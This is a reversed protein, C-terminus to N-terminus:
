EFKIRPDTFGYALDIVFNITISLTIFLLLITQIVPYDRALISEVLTRGIGPRAFVVEIVVTGTFMKIAELGIVTLNAIMANKLAYKYLVTRPNFGMAHATRVYDQSLIELMTARSIRALIGASSLGLVLGPLLLHKLLTVPDDAYGVGFAPLWGLHLSFIIIFIIGLWFNPACLAVLSVIMAAHDPFKNRNSAAYIGFPIGVTVSILLATIALGVTHPFQSTIIDSVSQGNRFSNGLDGTLVSRSSIWLQQLMPLDLGLKQRVSEYSEQTFNEEVILLAPDGPVLRTLLFIFAYAGLLTILTLLLRKVIYTTM